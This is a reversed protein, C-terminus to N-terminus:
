ARSEDYKGGTVDFDHNSTWNKGVINQSWATTVVLVGEGSGSLVRGMTRSGYVKKGLAAM